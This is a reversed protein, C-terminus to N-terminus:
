ASLRAQLESKTGTVMLGRARCQEKLEKVTGDTFKPAPATASQANSKIDDSYFEDLLGSDDISESSEIQESSVAKDTSPANEALRPKVVEQPSSSSLRQEHQILAAIYADFDPYQDMSPASPDPFRKRKSTVPTSPSPSPSNGYSESKSRIPTNVPLVEVNSRNKPVWVKRETPPSSRTSITTASTLSEERLLDSVSLGSGNIANGLASKPDPVSWLEDQSDNGQGWSELQAGSIDGSTRREKGYAAPINKSAGSAIGELWDSFDGSDAFSETSKSKINKDDAPVKSKKDQGSGSGGDLDKLLNEIISCIFLLLILSSFILLPFYSTSFSRM